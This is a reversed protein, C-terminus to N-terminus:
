QYQHLTPTIRDRTWHFRFRNLLNAFFVWTDFKIFIRGTPISNSWASPRVSMVFSISAKRLKVCFGLLFIWSRTLYSPCHRRIKEYHTSSPELVVLGLWCVWVNCIHCVCLHVVYYGRRWHISCIHMSVCAAITIHRQNRSSLCAQCVCAYFVIDREELCLVFISHCERFSCVAVFPVFVYM